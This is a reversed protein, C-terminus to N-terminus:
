PDPNLDPSDNTNAEWVAICLHWAGNRCWRAANTIDDGLTDIIASQTAEVEDCAQRHLAESAELIMSPYIEDSLSRQM